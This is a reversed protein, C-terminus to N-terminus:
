LCTSGFKTFKSQNLAVVVYALRTVRAMSSITALPFAQTVSYAPEVLAATPPVAGTACGLQSAAGNWLTAATPTTWSSWFWFKMLQKPLWHVYLWVSTRGSKCWYRGGGADITACPLVM